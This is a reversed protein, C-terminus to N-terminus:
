MEGESAPEVRWATLEVLSALEEGHIGSSVALVPVCILHLTEGKAEQLAKLAGMWADRTRAMTKHADGHHQTRVYLRLAHVHAWTLGAQLLSEQLEQAAGAEGGALSCCAHARIFTGPIWVATPNRCAPPPAGELAKGGDHLCWGLPQVEVRAGRPLAPVRLTVLLPQFALRRRPHSADCSASGFDREGECGEREEREEEEGEGEDPLYAARVPAAGDLLAQWAVHLEAAADACTAYATMALAGGRDLPCGMASAVAQASQVAWEAEMQPTHALTMSSPVLGLQGALFVLGGWSVAQAYPGICAPAWASVSQVHMVRRHLAAAGPSRATVDVDVSVAGAHAHAVCARAPPSCPAVHSSYAANCAAFHAMYPLYLHVFLVDPWGLHMSHLKATIGSLACSLAAASCAAEPSACPASALLTVASAHANSGCCRQVSAAAVDSAPPSPPPAWGAPPMHTADDDVHIIDMCPQAGGIAGPKPQLHWALCRLHGVGGAGSVGETDDLVVSAHTFARCDLTLTEYEGGEGCPHVGHRTQLRGLEPALEVVSRGLHREATLGLAAVKVLVARLGADAMVALLARQNHRWLPALSVLGLSGAVAEVRLRQYDSLIAGSCVGGLDPVRQKAAALLARLDEVEDGCEAVYELGLQLALADAHPDGRRASM